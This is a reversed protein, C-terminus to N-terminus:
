YTEKATETWIFHVRIFVKLQRLRQSWNQLLLPYFPNSNGGHMSDICLLYFREGVPHIWEPAARM